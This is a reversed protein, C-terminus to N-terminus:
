QCYRGTKAPACGKASRCLGSENYSRLTKSLSQVMRKDSGTVRKPHNVLFAQAQRVVLRIDAKTALPDTGRRLNLLTALLEGRLPLLADKSCPYGLVHTAEHPTRVSKGGIELPGTELAVEIDCPHSLWWCRDHIKACSGGPDRVTVTVTDSTSLSGDSVALRFALVLDGSVTPATFTPEQATPDSLGVAPGTIQTWAYTLIDADPDVGSGRLTVATAADVVQDSGADAVPPRNVDLVDIEVDMADSLSGDSCIFTVDHRGAEDFGPTWSFAGTSVDFVADAPLGTASYALLDGDPDDGTVIFSLRTGEQVTQTPIPEISPARNVHRVGVDVSDSASLAGDSVTLTLTLTTDSSVAPATFTPCPASPDSLSVAPGSGQTWSYTIADGDPDSGSGNLTVPTMENVSQDDGADAAPSRNVHIVDITVAAADFGGRGDDVVFEFGDPGSYGAAPTYVLDPAGGSLTGHEPLVSVSYVLPDGDPDTASVTVALAADQNTSVNQATAVPPRNAPPGQAPMVTITVSDTALSSADMAYFRFSLDTAVDVSPATFTCRAASPDSLNAPPGGTQMWGYALADGDPDTGSGVLAVITGAAVTQDPGAEASPRSNRPPKVELRAVATSVVGHSDSLRYSFEDSGVFGTDPAYCLSGDGQLFVRGRQPQTVPACSIADGDPDSDNALLGSTADVALYEGAYLSYSDDLAQPPTNPHMVTLAITALDSAGGNGDWVRYLATDTGVFGPEPVYTFGGDWVQDSGSVSLTLSGHRPGRVLEPSLADGDPDVDNASVGPSAVTIATGEDLQYADEEALPPRNVPRVTIDITAPASEAAAESAVFRFTDSGRFGEAPIYTAVGDRVSVTGNSPTDAIGYELPGGTKSIASLPIEIPTREDTVARGDLALPVQSGPEGFPDPLTGFADVGVQYSDGWRTGAFVTGDEAVAIALVANNARVQAAEILALPTGDPGIKLIQPSYWSSTGVWLNGLPDVTLCTPSGASVVTDSQSGDPTLRKVQGNQIVYMSGTSDVAIETSWELGGLVTPTGGGGAGYRLITPPTNVYVDGTPAVSLGTVGADGFPVSWTLEVQSGDAAFRLVRADEGVWTLAYARGSADCALGRLDSTVGMAEMDMSYWLEGSASYKALRSGSQGLVAEYWLAGGDPCAAVRLSSGTDHAGFTRLYAYSDSPAIWVTLVGAATEGRGDDVTYEVTDKGVFGPNATYLVEGGEVLTATGYQGDSLATVELPDGDPDRDNALVDISATSAETWVADPVAVPPRNVYAVQVAFTAEDSLGSSDTVSVTALYEGPAAYRHRGDVYGQDGSEVVVGSQVPSGDGWDITATHSAPDGPDDFWAIPGVVIADQDIGGPHIDLSWDQLSSVVPPAIVAVSTSVTRSAGRDDTTTLGITYTGPTAYTHTPSTEVSTAGDGFDWSYSAISGDVDFSGGGGVSIAQGVLVTPPSDILPQPTFNPVEQSVVPGQRKFDIEFKRFDGPRVTGSVATDLRTAGTSDSAYQTVRFDGTGTAEISFRYVGDIPTNVNLVKGPDTVAVTSGVAEFPDRSYYADPIDFVTAGSRSDYGTTRGLPDVVRLAVPCRGTFGLTACPSTVETLAWGVVYDRWNTGRMDSLPLPTSRWGAPDLVEPGNDDSQWDVAVVAHNGASPNLPDRLIVIVLNGNKLYDKVRKEVAANMSKNNPTSDMTSIVISLPVYSGDVGGVGAFMESGLNRFNYVPLGSADDISEVARASGLWVYVPTVEPWFSRSHELLDARWPTLDHWNAIMALCSPVCGAQYYAVPDAKWSYMTDLAWRPDRQTEYVSEWSTDPRYIGAVAQRPCSTALLLAFV